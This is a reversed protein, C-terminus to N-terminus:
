AGREARHDAVHEADLEVRGAGREEEGEESRLLLAAPQRNRRRKWAKPSISLFALGPPIMFAKQSGGVVVDLGWGEIDLPMTGLGTIADVVFIAETKAIAQGMARVDHQAGTSTESAQVFVGRVGPNAALAAEVQEAAAGGHLDVNRAFGAQSFGDLKRALGGTFVLDRGRRIPGADADDRRGIAAIAARGDAVRGISDPRSAAAFSRAVVRHVHILEAIGSGGAALAKKYLIM